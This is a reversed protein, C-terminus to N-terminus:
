RAGRVATTKESYVEVGPIRTASKMARVVGGIKKEDIAKYEDPVISPNTVRFHWVERFSVASDPRAVPPPPPLCVDIPADLIAEGAAQEGHKELDAAISLRRDEERKREAEEAARREAERRAAEEAAWTGAMGSLRRREDPWAGIIANKRAITAKWAAYRESIIPEFLGEIRKEHATGEAIAAGVIQYDSQSRCVTLARTRALLEGSVAILANDDPGPVTNNEM